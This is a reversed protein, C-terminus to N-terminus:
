VYGLVKFYMIFLAIRNGRISTDSETFGVSRVLEPNAEQILNRVDICERVM